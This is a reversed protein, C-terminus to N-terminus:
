PKGQARGAGGGGGRLGRGPGAGVPERERLDGRRPVWRARRHVSARRAATLSSVARSLTASSSSPVAVVHPTHPPRPPPPSLGVQLGGAPMVALLVARGDARGCLLWDARAADARCFAMSSIEVGVGDWSGLPRGRVRTLKCSCYPTEVPIAATLGRSVPLHALRDPRVAPCLGDLGGGGAPEARVGGALTGGGLPRRRACGAPRM